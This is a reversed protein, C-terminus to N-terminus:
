HGTRSTMNLARWRVAGPGVPARPLSRPVVRCAHAAGNRSPRPCQTRQRNSPVPGKSGQRVRRFLDGESFPRNVLVAIGRDRALPLIRRDAAREGLSYNVQVFDLPESRLVRELEDYASATYHTVGLYRIRGAEKWDRLTRLHTRWDLLNHIQMLDLRRRRLLRLSQEMQAVGAERGTTWVKTALFLADLIGLEAGLDGVVGEAAGYMPSSDIVRGGLEFFRQLVESRSARLRQRASTSPAGRGSVSRRSRRAVRRSPVCACRPRRRPAELGRAPRRR